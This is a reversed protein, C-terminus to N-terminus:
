RCCIPSNPQRIADCVARANPHADISTATVLQQAAVAEVALARKLSCFSGKFQPLIEIEV